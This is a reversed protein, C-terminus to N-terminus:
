YRTYHQLFKWFVGPLSCLSSICCVSPSLDLDVFIGKPASKVQAVDHTTVHATSAEFDADVAQTVTNATSARCSTELSGKQRLPSM